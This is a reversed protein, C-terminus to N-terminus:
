LNVMPFDAPVRRNFIQHKQSGLPSFFLKWPHVSVNVSQSWFLVFLFSRWVFMSGCTGQPHVKSDRFDSTLDGYAGHPLLLLVWWQNGMCITDLATGGRASWPCVAPQRNSLRAPHLAAGNEEFVRHSFNQGFHFQNIRKCGKGLNVVFWLGLDIPLSEDSDHPASDVQCQVWHAAHHVRQQLAGPFLVQRDHGHEQCFCMANSCRHFKFCPANFCQVHKAFQLGRKWHASNPLRHLVQCRVLVVSAQGQWSCSSRPWPSQMGEMCPFTPCRTMRLRHFHGTRGDLCSRRQALACPLLLHKSASQYSPPFSWNRLWSWGLRMFSSTIARQLATCHTHNSCSTTILRQRLDM